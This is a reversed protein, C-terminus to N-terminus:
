VVTRNQLAKLEMQLAELQAQAEANATDNTEAPAAQQAQADQLQTALQDIKAQLEAERQQAATDVTNAAGGCATLLMSFVILLSVVLLSLKNKFM